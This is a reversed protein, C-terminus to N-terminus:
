LKAEQMMRVVAEDHRRMGPSAHTFVKFALHSAVGCQSNPAVAFIATLLRAGGHLKSDECLEFNELSFGIEDGIFLSHSIHAFRAGLTPRITVFLQGVARKHCREAGKASVDDFRGTMNKHGIFSVLIDHERIERLMIGKRLLKRFAM